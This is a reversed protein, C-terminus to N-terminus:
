VNLSHPIIAREVLEHFVADLLSQSSSVEAGCWPLGTAERGAEGSRLKVLLETAPGALLPFAVCLLPLAPLALSLFRDREPTDLYASAHLRGLAARAATLTKPLPYPGALAGLLRVAFAQIDLDTSDLLSLVFDLCVHMSPVGGVLVPLAVPNYGQTHVLRLLSVDAVFMRHILRCVQDRVEAVSAGPLLLEILLQVIAAEQAQIVSHMLAVREAADRAAAATSTNSNGNSGGATISSATANATNTLPANQSLYVRSVYIYDQLSFPLKAM